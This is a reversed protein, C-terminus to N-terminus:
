FSKLLLPSVGYWSLKHLLIDRDIKDFAKAIDLSVVISILKKDRNLYLLDSLMTCAHITSHNKRFGFQQPSLMNNKEKHDSLQTYLCKEFLKSLYTQISIPRFETPSTPHSIKPVPVIKSIKM